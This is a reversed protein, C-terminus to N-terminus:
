WPTDPPGLISAGWVFLSDDSIPSASCGAPPESKISKLDSMLRLQASSTSTM